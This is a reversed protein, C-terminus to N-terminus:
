SPRPSLEDKGGAPESLFEGISRIVDHYMLCGVPVGRADLVIAHDAADSPTARALSRIAELLSMSGSVVTYPRRPPAEALPRVLETVSRFSLHGVERSDALFDSVFPGAPSFLLERPTGAQVLLGDKMLALRDGLLFAESLDHTVFVITKRLTEQIRRLQRQLQKRILPDVAGFPEDMLIIDPDAALARAVGVRQQQGGSLQGPYRGLFEGPPLGVLELLEAARRRRASKDRGLLRLVVAVNEEVTMHPFLGVQQIVYGIGRRLAVPDLGRVDQGRVLIRGHTPEIVRNIMKLTTTKGCGSPGILACIEGQGISLSLNRVAAVGDYSKGVNELAIVAELDGWSTRM